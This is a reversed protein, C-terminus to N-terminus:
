YNRDGETETSDMSCVPHKHNPLGTTICGVGVGFTHQKKKKKWVMMQRVGYFSKFLIWM